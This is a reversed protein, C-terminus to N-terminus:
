FGMIKKWGATYFAKLEELYEAANEHPIDHIIVEFFASFLGSALIHELTKDVNYKPYGLQEMTKAFKHTADVEIEAMDHIINEYKTGDSSCLILKFEDKNAYCYNMMKI